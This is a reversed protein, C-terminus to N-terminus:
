RHLSAAVVICHDTAINCLTNQTDLVSLLMEFILFILSFRFTQPCFAFLCDVVCMYMPPRNQVSSSTV